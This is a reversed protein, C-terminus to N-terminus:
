NFKRILKMQQTIVENKKFLRPFRPRAVVWPGKEANKRLARAVGRRTQPEGRQIHELLGIFAQVSGTLKQSRTQDAKAVKPLLQQLQALASPVEKTQLYSDYIGIFKLLQTRLVPDIPQNGVREEVWAALPKERKGYGKGLIETFTDVANTPPIIKGLHPELIGLLTKLRNKAMGGLLTEWNQEIVMKREEPDAIGYLRLIFHLFQRYPVSELVKQRQGKTTRKSYIPSFPVDHMEHLDVRSQLEDPSAIYRSLAGSIGLRGIKEAKKAEKEREEKIKTQITEASHKLWRLRVPWEFERFVLVRELIYSPAYVKMFPPLKEYDIGLTYLRRIDHSRDSGPHIDVDVREGKGKLLLPRSAHYPEMPHAHAPKVFANLNRTNKGQKKFDVHVKDGPKDKTEPEGLSNPLGGLTVGSFSVWRVGNKNQRLPVTVRRPTRNTYGDRYLGFDHYSGAYRPESFPLNLKEGRVRAWKAQVGLLKGFEGSRPMRGERAVFDRHAKLVEQDTLLTSGKRARQAGGDRTAPSAVLYLVRENIAGHTNVAFGNAQLAEEIQSRTHLTYPIVEENHVMTDDIAYYTILIKGGSRLVRVAEAFANELDFHGVSEIFLVLDFSAKEFPLAHGDALVTTFGEQKAFAINHKSVDIGTVHHGHTELASELTARGSGVSLIDQSTGFANILDLLQPLVSPDTATRSLRTMIGGTEM